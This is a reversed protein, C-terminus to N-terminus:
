SARGEDLRRFLKLGLCRDKWYSYVFHITERLTKLAVYSSTSNGTVKLLILRGIGSALDTIKLFDLSHIGGFTNLIETENLASPIESLRERANEM